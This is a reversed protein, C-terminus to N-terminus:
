DTYVTMGEALDNNLDIKDLLLFININNFLNQKIDIDKVKIQQYNGKKDEIFVFQLNHLAQSLQQRDYNTRLNSGGIVLGQPTNFLHGIHILKLM